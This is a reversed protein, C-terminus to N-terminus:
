FDYQAFFNLRNDTGDDLGGTWETKMNLYDAGLTVKGFRLRNALYLCTNKDRAAAAPLGDDPDDFAYGLYLTWTDGVKYSAQLWGGKAGIVEGQDPDAATTNVGQAIGGRVDDLNEGQWFELQLEISETVPLRLDLGFAQSKWSDEGNVPAAEEALEETATHLWLGVEWSGKGLWPHKGNYGARVQITPTGSDVGDLSSVNTGADINQGDVAGTLGLALQFIFKSGEGAAPTAEFRIQPRRDALNGFNWMVGDNNAIPFLPSIVDNFQGLLLSTSEWALKVFGHRMRLAERSESGATNYFDVEIKASVKAGGLGDVAPGTVDFGFRTLKPHIVLTSDGSRAVNAGIAAVDDESRIFFPVQSNDPKSDDYLVDVRAFGYFKLKVDGGQVELAQPKAPEPAPAPQQLLLALVFASIM